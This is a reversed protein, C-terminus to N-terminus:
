GKSLQQARKQAAKLADKIIQQFNNKAFVDLAAATTGGKSTVKARLLAPSINKEDLLNISGSFTKQILAQALKENLGLSQAAAIICELFFFVYAPGSGSVATVSDILKENVIVTHGLCNFIQCALNIDSKKAYRGKAIATMGQGILAPMNPMTRIVRAKAKLRREIFGTTIGAAISIVLRDEDVHLRLENLLEDFDQPKVALIIVDSFKVLNKIDESKIRYTKELYRSRSKDKESVKVLFHKQCSSIIAEGMNGGGIIGLKKM